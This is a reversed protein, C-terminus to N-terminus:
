LKEFILSSWWAHFHRFLAEGELQKICAGTRCTRLIDCRREFKKDYPCHGQFAEHHEGPPKYKQASSAGFLSYTATSTTGALHLPLSDMALILDMKAMLNQLSPLSVKDLLSGQQPLAAILDEALLKEDQNGWIFFFHADFYNRLCKLFTKLTEKSLQKNTWNSGSCVLIKLCEFQQLNNLIPQLHANEKISLKLPVSGKIKKSFNGMASQAIFLYDERINKGSPPHYKKNTFLLNPWESVSSYSFGVKLPSKASMTVLGSKVNGQLDLVLDYHIDRLEHRFNIIEQWTGNKLFESRWKKTQICITRNVLPHAEVLESFPKEVVWDIKCEPHCEKVYELVPFVHIIDGLSSMKVMLLRM